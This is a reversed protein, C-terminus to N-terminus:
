AVSGPLASIALTVKRLGLFNINSNPNFVEM